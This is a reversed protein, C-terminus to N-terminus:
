PAVYRITIPKNNADVARDGNLAWTGDAKKVIRFVYPGPIEDASANAAKMAEKAITELGKIIEAPIVTEDIEAKMGTLKGEKFTLTTNNSALYNYPAISRKKTTDALYLVQSNLGGNGDTYILLFPATEYYRFGAAIDDDNENSISTVNLGACASLSTSVLALFM